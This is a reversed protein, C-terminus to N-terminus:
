YSVHTAGLTSFRLDTSGPGLSVIAQAYFSTWELWPVVPMFDAQDFLGQADLVDTRVLISLDPDILVDGYPSAPYFYTDLGVFISVASFPLGGSVAYLYPQGMRVPIPLVMIPAAPDMVGPVLLRLFFHARRNYEALPLQHQADVAVRLECPLGTALCAQFFDISQGPPVVPDAAGHGIFVPPDNPDLFNAPDISDVADVYGAWAPDTHNAMIAGLSVGLLQSEYSAPDQSWAPMQFLDYEGSFAGVAQVASSQGLHAGVQGELAVVGASTGLLAALQAGSSFGFVGIRAPDINWLAAEGRVYRVAAKCDHIQAPWLAQGSLRYNIAFVTFGRARLNAADVQADSKDGTYWGGGHIWLIAPRPGPMPSQYVDLELTVGGAQAFAVSAFDPGVTQARALTALVAGALCAILRGSFTMANPM